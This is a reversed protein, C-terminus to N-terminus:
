YGGKVTSGVFGTADDTVGFRKKAEELM